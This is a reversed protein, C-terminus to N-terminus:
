SGKPGKPKPAKSAHVLSSPDRQDRRVNGVVLNLFMVGSLDHFLVCEHIHVGDKASCGREAHFAGSLAETDRFYVHARGGVNRSSLFLARTQANVKRVADNVGRAGGRRGNSSSGNVVLPATDVAVTVRRASHLRALLGDV